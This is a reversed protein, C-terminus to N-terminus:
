SVILRNVLRIDRSSSGVRVEYEGKEVVWKEGDYSALMDFDLEVRIGEKEGPNLLRTKHFGKLEQFPKDVRGKPARVYVQAVEKGPLSGTNEVEFSVIVRNNVVEVMLGRYEFSTYSLGFGFEYAPEVGFSDYYRYGVYIGEDYVVRQPNERPKGPFSWSPVDSYDMPFTTPLKGSPNREGSVIDAVIRGTEQGAQWTLLIGDVMNRWSAVEIPSGINLLAVVKKGHQHFAKSVREVLTREDDSLYFDGKEPKRDYGEGSIRSIVIIAVDNREAFRSIEEEGLFDQPVPKFVEGFMTKEIRYEARSRIEALYKAHTEALEEDIRLRKERMGDLISIVYRPHTDGSGTGGKITEIQGTGFLAIKADKGVPLAGDNKLLVVGEVGAEYAVRAHADLDPKNSYEYGKFSPTNVLVRLINKVNRILTEENLRGERVANIIAEVEDKRSPDVQNAKGPMIMDNGARMMEVPDDKAFWDTMVFGEFGWDCRLVRTLLWENQSCHEGNLKNYASMVTWPKSKKVAIEFGKLYIERLARESVLTDILFRNTEQNNAAFHKLCAGVGQSQVGKVFAAAMEGTLLPDESYYEFNRGCLPNRHINMAPALLIDVGYERVEEGVCRGVAELLERNWTSALMTEVPFATSHYTKDDNERRPNIRLGAPGDALVASPIGLREVPHTEGAAGPVRPPPNGFMGPIGIGVVIRAKEELTMRSVIDPVEKM